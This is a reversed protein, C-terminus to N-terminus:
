LESILNSLARVLNHSREGGFAGEEMLCPTYGFSVKKNTDAISMSGGWGAWFCAGEELYGMWSANDIPLGFGIGWRLPEVLVLDNGRIQEKLAFKILDKSFIRKGKYTGGNAMLAMSEAISRGNGHGGAAPIEARRWEPTNADLATMIGNTMVKQKVSGDELEFQDEPNSEVAQYIEAVRSHHEDELGIHFDIGLPEAIEDKFFNGVTKGSIRKIIEGMLNGISITHYGLSTGPEWWPEQSELLAAMEDHDYLDTVAVPEDWGPLGSSHSMIHSVLINEKRKQAFEPWYEAVPASFDLQGRDALIYASLSTANKTSSFVNVITNEEWPLSQAKDRTGAWIDVVVEGQYTIALSSGIDLNLEFQNEYCDVISKFKEDYRGHIEM